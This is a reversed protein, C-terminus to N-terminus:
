QGVKCDPLAARLEAVGADTVQTGALNLSKLSPLGMLHELGADTINTNSLNLEKLSTLGELQQLGVDTIQTGILFLGELRYLGELHVLGAATIDTDSLVLWKLETLEKLHILGADTVQTGALNLIELSALDALKGLGADAIPTNNLHLSKLGILDDIHTLGVDTIQTNELTVFTHVSNSRGGLERIATIADKEASMPNMSSQAQGTSDCGAVTLLTVAAMVRTSQAIMAHGRHSGETRLFESTQLECHCEDDREKKSRRRWDRPAIPHHSRRWLGTQIERAQLEAQALDERDPAYKM